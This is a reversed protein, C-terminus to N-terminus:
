QIGHKDGNADYVSIRCDHADGNADYVTVIGTKKEGNADYVTVKNICEWQAYLTVDANETYTASPVYSTGTGDQKTNWNTFRYGVRTPTEWSLTLSEDYWKTQSEPAGSGGNANYSVAYSALAPITIYQDKNGRATFTDATSTSSYLRGYIQASGYQELTITQPTKTKTYTRSVANGITKYQPSHNRLVQVSGSNSDIWTVYTGGEIVRVQLQKNDIYAYPYGFTDGDLVGFVKFQGNMTVSNGNDTLSYDFVLGGGWRANKINRYEEVFTVLAM